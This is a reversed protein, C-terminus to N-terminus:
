CFDPSASSSPVIARSSFGPDRSAIGAIPYDAMALGKGHSELERRIAAAADAAIADLPLVPLADLLADVKARERPTKAGSRM